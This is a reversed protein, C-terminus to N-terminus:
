KVKATSTYINGSYYNNKETRVIVIKNETSIKLKVEKLNLNNKENKMTIASLQFEDRMILLVKYLAYSFKYFEELNYKSDNIENNRTIRLDYIQGKCNVRFTIEAWFNYDNSCLSTDFLDAIKWILGYRKEIEIKSLNFFDSQKEDQYRKEKRAKKATKYMSDIEFNVYRIRAETSYRLYPFTDPREVIQQTSDKSNLFCHQYPKNLLRNIRYVTDHALKYYNSQAIIKNQFNPIIFLSIILLARYM